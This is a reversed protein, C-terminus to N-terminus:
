RNDLLERDRKCAAETWEAPVFRWHNLPQPTITGQQKIYQMMLYRLDKQTSNIIRSALQQRPIGAGQTLLEGGGNGRYSNLACRYEKDLSFPTGDAMSLIRVRNGVPKTVDVEYLIGAASEFNFTLNTFFMTNDNRRELLMIHDDPSQMQNTWLGFSMELLDKVEKGTLRMTYLFNEYKYLAFMDSVTLPGAKIVSNYSLPAAFSIEADTLHFQVRHIFDIFLSSGFYADMGDLDDTLVGIPQNVWERLSLRQDVFEAEFLQAVLDNAGMCSSAVVPVSPTFSKSVVRDGEMKLSVNMMAFSTADSSTGVCVVNRGEINKVERIASHHDHGYLIFDFGPVQRAVQETANELLNGDAIGGNFGSHFVGVILDPHEKERIRNVWYRCSTEMDDFRLNSWLTEPLWFPVTPTVMGLLAIKVGYRNLILYPSLYPENTRTDIINAGLVPMKLDRIWRDYVDHGTELDHNGMVTCVYGMQNMVSAVLHESTTDVYNYYYATPQGQLCDGGDTLILADGFQRRLSDVASYIFPLGSHVDKMKFFDFTFVAGHVDSTHLFCLNVEKESSSGSSFNTQAMCHSSFMVFLIFLHKLM